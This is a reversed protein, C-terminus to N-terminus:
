ATEAFSEVKIKATGTGQWNFSGGKGPINKTKTHEPGRTIGVITAIREYGHPNITESLSGIAVSRTDEWGKLINFVVTQIATSISDDIAVDNRHRGSWAAHWPQELEIVTTPQRTEHSM